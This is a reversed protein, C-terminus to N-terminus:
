LEDLEIIKKGDENIYINKVSYKSAKSVLVEKEEEFDSFVRISPGSKNSIIRFIGGGESAFSSSIDFDSSFSTISPFKFETGVKLESIKYVDMMDCKFGSFIEGKYAPIKEIFLNILEADKKFKESGEGYADAKKVARSDDVAYEKIAKITAMPDKINYKQLIQKIKNEDFVDDFIESHLEDSKYSDNIQINSCKRQNM